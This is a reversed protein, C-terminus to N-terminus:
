KIAWHRSNVSSTSQTSEVISTVPYHRAMMRNHHGDRLCVDIQYMMVARSRNPDMGYLAANAKVWETSITRATLM